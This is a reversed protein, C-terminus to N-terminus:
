KKIKSENLRKIEKVKRKVKIINNHSFIDFKNNDFLSEIQKEFPYNKFILENINEIKFQFLKMLFDEKKKFDWYEKSPNKLYKIWNQLDIVPDFQKEREEYELKAKAYFTKLDKFELEKDKEEEILNSLKELFLDNYNRKKMLSLNKLFTLYEFFFPVKSAEININISFDLSKKSEFIYWLDPNNYFINFIMFNLLTQFDKDKKDSLYVKKSNIPQNITVRLGFGILYDLYNFFEDSILNTKLEIFREIDRAIKILQKQKIEPYLRWKEENFIFKDPYEKGKYKRKDLAILHKKDILSVPNNDDGFLYCKLTKPTMQNTEKTLAKNLDRYKIRPNEYIYKVIIKEMNSPIEEKM